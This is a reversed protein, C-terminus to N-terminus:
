LVFHAPLPLLDCMLLLRQIFELTKSAEEQYKLNFIYFVAFLAALGSAFAPNSGECIVHREISIMWRCHVMQEIGIFFLPADNAVM